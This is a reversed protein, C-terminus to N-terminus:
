LIIYDNNGTDAKTYADKNNDYKRIPSQKTVFLKDRYVTLETSLNIMRLTYTREDKLKPDIVGNEIVITLYDGVVEWIGNDPEFEQIEQTIDDILQLKYNGIGDVFQPIM